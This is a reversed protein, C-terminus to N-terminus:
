RILHICGNVVKDDKEKRATAKLTYFYVGAPCQVFQNDVKGNWDDDDPLTYQYVATGWRNFIIIDISKYGSHIVRWVDNFGDTGPTFVNALKLDYDDCERFTVRITDKTECGNTDRTTLIATQSSLFNRTFSQSGNEWSYQYAKDVPLTIRYDEGECPSTDRPLGLAPGDLVQVFRSISDPCINARSNVMVVNFLGAKGYVHSEPSGTATQGDGFYWKVQGLSDGTATFSVPKRKDCLIEPTITFDADSRNFSAGCITGYSEAVAMGYNYLVFPTSSSVRYTNNNSVESSFFWFSRGLISFQKISAAPIPTKNVAIVPKLASESFGSLYHKYKTSRLVPFHAQKLTQSIGAIQVLSPDGSGSLLAGNCGSSHLLQMCIVPSSAIVLQCGSASHILQQGRSINGAFVGNITINTNNSQATILISYKSNDPTEPIFFEKQSFSMPLLQEFQADCSFCNGSLPFRSCKSGQFVAVRKCSNIVKIYTGSLNQNELAQFLFVQGQKITRTFTSGNGQGTFLDATITIEIRTTGTDIALVAVQAEKGIDGGVHNVLYERGNEIVGMPYISAVDASGDIRNVAQIQVPRKSTIRVGTNISGLLRSYWLSNLKLYIINQKGPEVPFVETHNVQPNFVTITDRSEPAVILHLVSDAPTFINETFTFWFVTGALSRDNQAGLPLCSFLVM